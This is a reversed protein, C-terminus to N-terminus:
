RLKKSITRLPKTIKWSLSNELILKEASITDLMRRLDNNQRTIEKLEARLHNMDKLQLRYNEAEAQLETVLNKLNILSFSENQKEGLTSFFEALEAREAFEPRLWYLEKDKPPENLQLVGLGYSHSFNIHRPYVPELEQWLKWVGFGRERVHTDHFLVVAGPALKCRWSEFDHRVAEYTHLGDIHLLDITGDEFEGLAADFTMRLLRSFHKYNRENHENVNIYIQEDYKGAHEDGLWTDVAFCKAGIEAEAIAQCFAFYSNGTHTGLEVFLEPRFEEALWKAFPTHGIWADTGVLSKPTFKTASLFNKSIM